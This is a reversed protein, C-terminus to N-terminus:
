TGPKRIKWLTERSWQLMIRLCNFHHTYLVDTVAFASLFFPFCPFLPSLPFWPLPLYPLLHFRLTTLIQLSSFIGQICRAKSAKLHCKVESSPADSKLAKRERLSKCVWLIETERCRFYCKQAAERRGNSFICMAVKRHFWSLATQWMLFHLTRKVIHGLSAHGSHIDIRKVNQRFVQTKWRLIDSFTVFHWHPCSLSGLNDKIQHM